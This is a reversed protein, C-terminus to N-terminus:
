VDIKEITSFIFKKMEIRKDGHKGEHEELFFNLKQKDLINKLFFGAKSDLEDNKMVFLHYHTDVAHTAELTQCIISNLIKTDKEMTRGTLYLRAETMMGDNSFILDADKTVDGLFVIPKSAIVHGVGIKTGYYLASFSGMSYGNLIIDSKDISLKKAIDLIKNIVADEYENNLEEGLMFAGGRARNDQFYLVPYNLTSLSLYEFKYLENLAGTFSVILKETKKGPVFYTCIQESRKTFEVKDGPLYYGYEGRDKTVYIKKLKFTGGGKIQLVLNISTDKPIKLIAEKKTICSRERTGNKYYFYVLFQVDLQETKDYDFLLKFTGGSYLKRLPPLSQTWTQHSRNWTIATIWEEGYDGSLILKYRGYRSIKGPIMSSIIGFESPAIPGAWQGQYFYRACEEIMGIKKEQWLSDVNFHGFEEFFNHYESKGGFYLISRSRGNKIITLVDEEKVAGTDILLYSYTAKSTIFEAASMHDIKYDVKSEFHKTDIEIFIM